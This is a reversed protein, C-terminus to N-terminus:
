NLQENLARQRPRGPHASISRFKHYLAHLDESLLRAIELSFDGRGQLLALFEERPTYIATTEEGAVATIRHPEGDMAESLGLLTGPGAVELLQRQQQDTPLFIRVAGTEVLFIGTAPSGEQFLLAGVAFRQSAKNERLAQLLEASLKNSPPQMFLLFDKESDSDQM